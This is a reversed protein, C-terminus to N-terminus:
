LLSLTESKPASEPPNSTQVFPPLPRVPVVGLGRVRETLEEREGVAAYGEFLMELKADLNDIAHLAIAEPTKPLVPSGFEYSGHHSAVVHLLHLRTSENDPVLGKWQALDLTQWLRNILEVGITIHGLMDGVPTSRIEFGREPPCTEWLKGVDHFLIGALLLSRNLRPYVEAIAQACRMMQATHACLGGRFAHHYNRAAAARRFREGYEALFMECLARLRPDDISAVLETITAANREAEEQLTADGAFFHEAEQESLIRLNWTRADFGYTAHEYFEGEIQVAVGPELGDCQAFVSTDQWARLLVSDRADRARVERFAKGNAAQRTTISEIQALFAATGGGQKAIARAARITASRTETETPM